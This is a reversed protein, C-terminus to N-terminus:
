IEISKMTSNFFSLALTMDDEEREPSEFDKLM